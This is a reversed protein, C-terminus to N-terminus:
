QPSVYHLTVMATNNQAVHVHPAGELLPRAYAADQVAGIGPNSETVAFAYYDGPRVGELEFQAGHFSSVVIFGRVRMREDRPVLVIMGGDGDQVSGRVSGGGTKLVVRFPPMGPTVEIEDLTIDRGGLRVSDLYHRGFTWGPDVILRYRGPYARDFRIDGNRFEASPSPEQRDVPALYADGEVSAAPKGDLEVKGTLQAPPTLRLTIREVDHNTVVANAFGRLTVGDRTLDAKLQTDGPRVRSFEFAGDEGATATKASGIQVTAGAAPKGGEDLVRGSVRMVPVSQLVIDYGTLDNGASLVIVTAQARETVNPFFTPATETPETSDKAAPPTARLVYEGPVLRRFVFSGSEDTTATLDGRVRHTAQVAVRAVPQREADLVRGSLGPWPMLALHLPAPDHGGDIQVRARAESFEKAMAVVMYTGPSAQEIRFAGAADTTAQYGSRGGAFLLTAKIPEHTIANSVTGSVTVTQAALAPALALALWAARRV